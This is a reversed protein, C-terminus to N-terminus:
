ENFILMKKGNGLYYRSHQNLFSMKIAYNVRRIAEFRKSNAWLWSCATVFHIKRKALHYLGIWLWELLQLWSSFGFRITKRNSVDIYNQSSLEEPCALPYDRILKEFKHNHLKYFNFLLNGSHSEVAFFVSQVPGHDFGGAQPYLGRNSIM